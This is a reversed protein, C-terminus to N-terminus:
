EVSENRKEITKWDRHIQNLEFRNNNKIYNVASLVLPSANMSDMEDIAIWNAGNTDISELRNLNKQSVNVEMFLALHQIYNKGEIDFRIIFEKFGLNQIVDIEYGTEELFERKIAEEIRENDEISGGPLDYRNKYPGRIKDVVLLRNGKNCIGYVGIHRHLNM